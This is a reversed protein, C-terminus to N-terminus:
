VIVEELKIRDEKIVKEVWKYSMDFEIWKRQLMHNPLDM